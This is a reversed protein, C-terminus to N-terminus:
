NVKKNVRELNEIRKDILYFLDNLSSEDKIDLYVWYGTQCFKKESFAKKGDTSLISVDITRTVRPEIRQMAMLLEDGIRLNFLLHDDDYKCSIIHGGRHMNIVKFDYFAYKSLIEDLLTKKDKLYERLEDITLDVESIIRDM